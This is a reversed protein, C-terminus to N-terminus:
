EVSPDLGVYRLADEYSAAKRMASGGSRDLHNKIKKQRFLLADAIRIFWFVPLLVACKKLVPYRTQMSALGPFIGRLFLSLRSQKKAQLMDMNQAALRSAKHGWSGSSFIFATMHATFDTEPGGAFWNQLLAQTNEFFVGLNISRMESGIYELDLEPYTQLWVWLDTLQRLGIGGARYHKGYHAFLFIYTDEPSFSYRHGQEPVARQWGSGFYNPPWKNVLRSHLEMYLDKHLWVIEHNWEHSLTFGLEEMVQSITEYQEMRILVDADGMPRMGPEPYLAKLITGKLPLYDIGQAEFKRFLRELLGTQRQSLMMQRCYRSFLAQMCPTDKPIGCLVAGAYVMGEIQHSQILAMNPELSFDPDLTQATGSLAAQILRLINKQVSEM